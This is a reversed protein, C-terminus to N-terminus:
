VERRDATNSENERLVEVLAAVFHGNTPKGSFPNVSYGFIDRIIEPAMNDFAVEIAHRMAREVRSLTTSYMHAILPYLEKTISRLYKDDELVAEVATGLYQYGLLHQPVRCNLLLKRTEPKM